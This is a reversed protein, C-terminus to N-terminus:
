GTNKISVTSTVAMGMYQRLRRQSCLDRLSASCFWLQPPPPPHPLAPPPVLSDLLLSCLLSVEVWLLFDPWIASCYVYQADKMPTSAVEPKSDQPLSAKGRAGCCPRRTLHPCQLLTAAFGRLYQPCTHKWPPALTLRWLCLASFIHTLPLHLLWPM